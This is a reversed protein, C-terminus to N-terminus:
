KDEINKDPQAGGLISPGGSLAARRRRERDQLARRILKETAEVTGTLTALEPAGSKRAQAFGAVHRPVSGPPMKRLSLVHDYLALLFGDREADRTGKKAGPKGAAAQKWERQAIERGLHRVSLAFVEALLGIIKRERAVREEANEGLFSPAKPLGFRDM